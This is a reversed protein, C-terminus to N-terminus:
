NEKPFKILEKHDYRNVNLGGLFHVDNAAAKTARGTLTIKDGKKHNFKGVRYNILKTYYTVSMWENGRSGDGAAIRFNYSETIGDRTTGGRPEDQIIGTITVEKQDVIEVGFGEALAPNLATYFLTLTFLILFKTM